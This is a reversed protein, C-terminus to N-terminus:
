PKPEWLKGMPECKGGNMRQSQCTLALMGGRVLNPQQIAPALCVDISHPNSASELPWFHACTKCLRETM